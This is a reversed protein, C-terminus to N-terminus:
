DKVIVSKNIFKKLVLTSSRSTDVLIGIMTLVM